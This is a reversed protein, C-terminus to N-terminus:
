SLLGGHLNMPDFAAHVSKVQHPHFLGLTDHEEHGNSETDQLADYGVKALVEKFEPTSERWEWVNKYGTRNPLSDVQNFAAKATDIDTQKHKFANLIRDKVRDKIDDFPTSIVSNRYGLHVPSNHKVFVKLVNPQSNLDNYAYEAAHNPNPSTWIYPQIHTDSHAVTMGRYRPNKIDYGMAHARELATNNSHLGLGGKSIPQAANHQAISHAIEHPTQVSENLYSIYTKM